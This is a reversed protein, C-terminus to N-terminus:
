RVFKLTQYAKRFAIVEARVKAPEEKHIMVRAILRAIDVMAAEDMGFRTVEQTGMRIGNLDEAVPAIPLGIGCM